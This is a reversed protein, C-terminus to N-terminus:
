KLSNGVSKLSSKCVTERQHMIQFSEFYRELKSTMKAAINVSMEHSDCSAASVKWCVPPSTPHSASEELSSSQSLSSACFVVSGPSM